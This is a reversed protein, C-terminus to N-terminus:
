ILTKTKGWGVDAKTSGPSFLGLM